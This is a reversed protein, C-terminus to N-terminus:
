LLYCKTSRYGGMRRVDPQLAFADWDRRDSSLVLAHRAFGRVWGGVDVLPAGTRGSSGGHKTSRDCEACVDCHTVLRGSGESGRRQAGTSEWVATWRGGGHSLSVCDARAGACMCDCWVTRGVTLEGQRVSRSGGFTVSRTVLSWHRGRADRVSGGHESSRSVRAFFMTVTRTAVYSDSLRCATARVTHFGQLGTKACPFM